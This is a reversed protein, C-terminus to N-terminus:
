SFSSVTEERSKKKVVTRVCLFLFLLSVCFRMNISMSTNTSVGHGHCDYYLTFTPYGEGLDFMFSKPKGMLFLPEAETGDTKVQLCPLCPLGPYVLFM